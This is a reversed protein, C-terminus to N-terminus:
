AAWTEETTEKLIDRGHVHYGAFNDVAEAPSASHGLGCVGALEPIAQLADSGSPKLIEKHLLPNRRHRVHLHFQLTTCTEGIYATPPSACQDLESLLKRFARVDTKVYEFRGDLPGCAICKGRGDRIADAEFLQISGFTKWLLEIHNGREIHDVISDIRKSKELRDAGSQLVVPDIYAKVDVARIFEFFIHPRESRYEM